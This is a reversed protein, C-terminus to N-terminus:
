FDPMDTNKKVAISLSKSFKKSLPVRVDIYQKLIKITTSLACIAISPWRDTCTDALTTYAKTKM